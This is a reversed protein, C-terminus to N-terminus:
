APRAYREMRTHAVACLYPVPETLQGTELWSWAPCRQCFGRVDCRQCTDAPPPASDVFHQLQEWATQFGIELPRAAPLPLDACVNMEGAPSILFAARGAQCYFAPAAAGDNARQADANWTAAAAADQMELEIVNEPTLRCQEVPTPAGDRHRTLLWGATFPVGWNRAMRRLAPLEHLNQRTLITKLGLPVRHRVLAEIGACCRAYSGPVGTISEYVAATAGYLSIETRNPPATALREAIADDILTGNSFVTIILGMQTLPTFIDFFDARLLVEGGTLLLFMMGHEVARRALELWEAASLERAPTAVAGVANSNIYCMRCALNCRATLEFTGNLPQRQAAARQHLARVLPGYEGPLNTM